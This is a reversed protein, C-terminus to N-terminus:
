TAASTKPASTRSPTFTVARLPECTARLQVDDGPWPWHMLLAQGRALWRHEQRFAREIEVIEEPDLFRQASPTRM